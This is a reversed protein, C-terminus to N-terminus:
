KTPEKLAEAECNPCFSEPTPYSQAKFIVVAGKHKECQVMLRPKLAAELVKVRAEAQEKASEYEGSIDFLRQNKQRLEAVEGRLQEITAAQQQCFTRLADICYKKHEKDAREAGMYVYRETASIVDELLREFEPMKADPKATMTEKQIAANQM